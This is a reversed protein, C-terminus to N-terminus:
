NHWEDYYHFVGGYSVFRNSIFEIPEYDSYEGQYEGDENFYTNLEYGDMSQLSSYDETYWSYVVRHVVEGYIDPLIYHVGPEVILQQWYSMYTRAIFTSGSNWTTRLGYHYAVGDIYINSSTRSLEAIKNTDLFYGTPIDLKTNGVNYFEMVEYFYRQEGNDLNRPHEMTVVLRNDVVEATGVDKHFADMDIGPVIYGDDNEQLSVFAKAVYWLIVTENMAAAPMKNQYTNGLGYENIGTIVIDDGCNTYFTYEHYAEDDISSVYDCDIFCNTGDSAVTTGGAENKVDPADTDWYGSHIFLTYNGKMIEGFVSNWMLPESFTFPTKTADTKIISAPNSITLTATLVKTVYNKHSVTAEIIYEGIEKFTNTGSGNTRRYSISSGSPAGSVEIKHTEGDYM